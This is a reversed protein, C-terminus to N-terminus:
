VKKVRKKKSPSLSGLRKRTNEQHKKIKNMRALYENRTFFNTTLNSAKPVPMRSNGINSNNLQHISLLSNNKFRLTKRKKKPPENNNNPM